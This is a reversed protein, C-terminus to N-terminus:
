NWYGVQEREHRAPMATYTGATSLKNNGLGTGYTACWDRAAEFHEVLKLLPVYLPQETNQYTKMLRLAPMASRIARTVDVHLQRLRALLLLELRVCVGSVDRLGSVRVSVHIPPLLAHLVVPRLRLM